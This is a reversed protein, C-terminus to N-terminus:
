VRGGILSNTDYMIKSSVKDIVAGIDGQVVLQVIPTITRREVTRLSSKNVASLSTSVDINSLKEFAKPISRAIGVVKDDINDEEAELGKILGQDINEGIGVFVRSPSHIKLIEKFKNAVWNAKETVWNVVGQWASKLGGLLGSIVNSGISLMASPLAKFSGAFNSAFGKVTSLGTNVMESIKNVVSAKVEQFKNVTNTKLETIKAIFGTKMENAKNIIAEKIENFKSSANEKLTTWINSAYDKIGSWMNSWFSSLIEMYKTCTDIIGTFFKGWADIMEQIYNAITTKLMEWAGAFDGQFLLVIAQVIGSVYSVFAGLVETIFTIGVGIRDMVIQFVPALVEGLMGALEMVADVLPKINEFLELVKPTLEVFKSIITAIYPALIQIAKSLTTGIINALTSLAKMMPELLPKMQEFIPKLSEFASKLDETMENATAKMEEVFAGFPTGDLNELKQGLDDLVKVIGMIAPIVVKELVPAGIKAIFQQWASKLNGLQNELGDAERSAQGMAGSKKMMEEAFLLRTNQKEAETMKTFDKGLNATAWTAIQTANAFLGISEGGEYNGKIFSTLNGQADELSKDYFAAADAAATMGRSAMDTAEESDIGLGKFMSTLKSLGPKLREPLIGMSKGMEDLKGQVIEVSEGFVQEFQAEVAKLEASAQVAKVFFDKIKSIAFVTAIVTGLKKLAGGMANTANPAQKIENNFDGVKDPNLTDKITKGADQMSKQFTSTDISLQYKLDPM